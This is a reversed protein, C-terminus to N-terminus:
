KLSVKLSNEALLSALQACTLRQYQESEALQEFHQLVFKRTAELSEALYYVESMHLMDVCNDITLAKKM